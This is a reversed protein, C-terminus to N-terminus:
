SARNQSKVPKILMGLYHSRLPPLVALLPYLVGTAPGLMRAVPPLVTVSRVCVEFGPFLNRIEAIGIGRVNGNWPNKLRLDYWLVAGGPRLVRSAEGAIRGAAAPDLVSSLTTFLLVLDFSGDASELREANGVAIHVGPLLDRAAAVHAAVLDVGYLHERGAGLSLMRQLEHGCGCGIDLIKKGSLPWCGRRRLMQTLLRTRESRMARNGINRESWRAQTEPCDRYERYVGIIRDTERSM